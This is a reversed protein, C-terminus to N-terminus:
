LGFFYACTEFRRIIWVICASDAYFCSDNQRVIVRSFMTLDYRITFWKIMQYQTYIYIQMIDLYLEGWIIRLILGDYELLRLQANLYMFTIGLYEGKENEFNRHLWPLIEFGKLPQLKGSITCNKIWLSTKAPIGPNTLFRASLLIFILSTLRAHFTVIITIKSNCKIGRM